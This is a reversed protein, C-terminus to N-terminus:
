LINDHLCPSLSTLPMSLSKMYLASEFQDFNSKKKKADSQLDERFLVNGLSILSFYNWHSILIIKVYIIM